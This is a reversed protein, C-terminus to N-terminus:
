PRLQSICRVYGREDVFVQAGACQLCSLGIIGWTWATKQLGPLLVRKWFIYLIDASVHWRELTGCCSSLQAHGTARSRHKALGHHRSTEAPTRPSEWM